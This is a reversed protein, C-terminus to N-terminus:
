INYIHMRYIYIYGHTHTHTHYVYIYLAQLTHSGFTPRQVSPFQNLTVSGGMVVFTGAMIGTSM